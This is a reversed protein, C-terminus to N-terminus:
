VPEITMTKRLKTVKAFDLVELEEHNSFLYGEVEQLSAPFIVKKLGEYYEDDLSDESLKKLGDRIELVGGQYKGLVIRPEEVNNEM